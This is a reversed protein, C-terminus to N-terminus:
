YLLLVWRKNHVTTALMLMFGSAVHRRQLPAPRFTGTCPEISAEAAIIQICMSVRYGGYRPIEGALRCSLASGLNGSIQHWQCRHMNHKMFTQRVDDGNNLTHRM